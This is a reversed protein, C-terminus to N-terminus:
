IKNFLKECESVINDLWQYYNQCIQLIGEESEDLTRLFEFKATFSIPYSKLEQKLASKLEENCIQNEEVIVVNYRANEKIEIEEPIPLIYEKNTIIPREKLSINRLKTILKLINMEENKLSIKSNWEEWGTIKSYEKNLIWKVSRASSIFANLYYNFDPDIDNNVEM